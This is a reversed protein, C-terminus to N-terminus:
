VVSYVRFGLSRQLTQSLNFVTVSMEMRNKFMGVGEGGNRGHIYRLSLTM